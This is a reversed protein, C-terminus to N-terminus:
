FSFLIKIGYGESKVQDCSLTIRKDGDARGPRFDGTVIACCADVIYKFSMPLNEFADLEDPAFRTLHIKCPLKVHSKVPNLALAVTKKQITHRKHSETWHEFTNAESVTRLPLNLQVSNENLEASLEFEKNFVRWARKKRSGHTPRSKSKKRKRPGNGNSNSANSNIMQDKFHFNM